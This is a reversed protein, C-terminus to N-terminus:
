VGEAIGRIWKAERREHRNEPVSQMANTQSAHSSSRLPYITFVVILPKNPMASGAPPPDDIGERLLSGTLLVRPLGLLIM